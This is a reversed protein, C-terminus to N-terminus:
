GERIQHFAERLYGLGAGISILIGLGVVSPALPRAFVALAIGLYLIVTAGKGLQSAGIVRRWKRWLFAGGAVQAVEKAVLIGAAWPPLKGQEALVLLATLVVVKDALPDLVRGLLTEAKLRRALYGDVVDTLGALALVAAGGLAGWPWPLFLLYALLPALLLRM